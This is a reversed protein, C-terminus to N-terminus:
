KIPSSVATCAQQTPPPPLPRHGSCTHRPPTCPLLPNFKPCDLCPEARSKPPLGPMGFFSTAGCYPKASTYSWRNKLLRSQRRASQQVLPSAEALTGGQTPGGTKSSRRRNRSKKEFTHGSAQVARTQVRARKYTDSTGKEHNLLCCM